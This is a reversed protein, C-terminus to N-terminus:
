KEEIAPVSIVPAGCVAEKFEDTKIGTAAAGLVMAIAAGLGIMRKKTFFASALKEWM